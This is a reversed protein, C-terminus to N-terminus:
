IRSSISFLDILFVNVIGLHNFSAASASPILKECSRCNAKFSRRPIILFLSGPVFCHFSFAEEGAFAFSAKRIGMCFERLIKEFVIPNKRIGSFYFIFGGIVAGASGTARLLLSEKVCKWANRGYTFPTGPSVRVGSRRSLASAGEEVLKNSSAPHTPAVRLLNLSTPSTARDLQAM